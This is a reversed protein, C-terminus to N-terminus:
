SDALVVQIKCGGLTLSRKGDPGQGRDEMILGAPRIEVVRAGDAIKRNVEEVGFFLIGKQLDIRVGVEHAAM